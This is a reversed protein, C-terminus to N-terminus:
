ANNVKLVSQYPNYSATEDIPLPVGEAQPLEGQSPSRPVRNTSRM